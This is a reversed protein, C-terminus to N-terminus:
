GTFASGFVPFGRNVQINGRRLPNLYLQVDVYFFNFADFFILHPYVRAIKEMPGQYGDIVLEDLFFTRKWKFVFVGM